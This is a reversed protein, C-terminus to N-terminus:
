EQAVATAPNPSDTPESLARAEQQLQESLRICHEAADHLRRQQIVLDGLKACTEAYAQKIEEITRM